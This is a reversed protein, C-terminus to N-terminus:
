RGGSSGRGKGNHGAKGFTHYAWGNGSGGGKGGKGGKGGRGGKGVSGGKGSEGPWNLLATLHDDLFTLTFKGTSGYAAQFDRWRRSTSAAWSWVQAM